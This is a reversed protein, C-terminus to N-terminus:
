EYTAMDVPPNPYELNNKMGQLVATFQQLAEADSVDHFALKAKIKNATSNANRM